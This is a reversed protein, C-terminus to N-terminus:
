STCSFDMTQLRNLLKLYHESTGSHCIESVLSLGSQSKTFIYRSPIECKEPTSYIMNVQHPLDPLRCFSFHDGQATEIEISIITGPPLADFKAAKLEVIGNEYEFRKEGAKKLPWDLQSAIWGQLYIAQVKTHCFFPTEFGNYTIQVTKANKLQELREPSYFAAGLLERWSETRAWNLDAVDCGAENKHDLVAKAFCALNDTTESDFIIRTALSEMQHTLPNERCPDEAWVLYVPLDPLIHPLIVFPVKPMSSSSAEFEIYDCVIDCEGKAGTMISVNAKLFDETATKDVTIFIVRSPFREVVKQALDQVYATRENKQTFLILNFLCARMKSTGELSDWIRTLEAPIDCIQM